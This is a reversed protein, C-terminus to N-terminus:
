HIWVWNASRATPRFRRRTPMVWCRRRVLVSWTWPPGSARRARSLGSAPAPATRATRRPGTPPRPPTAEPLERLLASPRISTFAPAFRPWDIDAVFETTVGSDLATALAAVALDPDLSAVAGRSRRRGGTAEAAMGGGAWPGWAVSTAPLGEARRREALADLVANAAAYAGQGANGMVGALSSFLVFASLERDRTLEDLHLAAEAKARMVHRIRQPDTGGIVADDLVGATHLVADVPHRELLAAVEERVSVDAAAVTVRAGM